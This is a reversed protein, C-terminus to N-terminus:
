FLYGPVPGAEYQEEGKPLIGTEVALDLWKDLQTFSVFREREERTELSDLVGFEAAVILSWCVEEAHLLREIEIDSYSGKDIDELTLASYPEAM